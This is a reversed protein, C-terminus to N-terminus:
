AEGLSTRLAKVPLKADSPRVYLPELADLDSVGERRLADLAEVLLADPRPADYVSPVREAAPGLVSLLREGYNAFADGGVAIRAGAARAAVLRAVDEPTGHMPEVLVEGREGGFVYAAGYVEGRQADVFAASVAHASALGRALVRLSGVGVLEAGLGIALGKATAIGVRLSTFGGPGLGVGVCRIQDRSRGASELLREIMPLLTEEHRGPARATISALMQGSEALALTTQASSTDLCLLM